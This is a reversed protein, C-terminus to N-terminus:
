RLLNQLRKIRLNLKQIKRENDGKINESAIIDKVQFLFKLALIYNKKKEFKNAQEIAFKLEIEKNLKIIELIKFAIKGIETKFNEEKAKAYTLAKQYENLAEQYVFNKEAIEAKKQYLKIKKRAEEVSIKKSELEIEQVDKIELIKKLEYEREQKEQERVQIEDRQFELDTAMVLNDRVMQYMNWLIEEKSIVGLIRSTYNLINPIFFYPREKILDKIYEYLARQILSFNNIIRPPIQASLIQPYILNVEFTKEILKKVHDFIGSDGIKDFKFIDEKYIEEFIETFNSLLEKLNNSASEDLILCIRCLKGDRLLINFDKYQFEYFKRSIKISSPPKKESRPLGESSFIVNAQIFGSLLTANIPQDGVAMNFMPLGKKSLIIIHRINLIDHYKRWIYRYNMELRREESDQETIKLVDVLFHTEIFKKSICRLCYEPYGLPCVSKDVGCEFGIILKFYTM